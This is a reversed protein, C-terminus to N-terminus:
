HKLTGLSNISQLSCRRKLIERIIRIYSQSTMSISLKMQDIHGISKIQWFEAMKSTNKNAGENRIPANLKGQEM